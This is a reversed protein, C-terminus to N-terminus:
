AQTRQFWTLKDQVLVTHRLLELRTSNKPYYKFEGNDNENAM